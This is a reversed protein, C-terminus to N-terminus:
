KIFNLFNKEKSLTLSENINKILEDLSKTQTAIWKSLFLADYFGTEADYTIDINNM